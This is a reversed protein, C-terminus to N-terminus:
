GVAVLMKTGLEVSDVRYDAVIHGDGMAVIRQAKQALRDDHTVLMFATGLEVNLETLLEFVLAGNQSDLNGTPEDALILKPQNALARVIAVRQQQGGSLEGPRSNLRSSLGVRDLLDKVWATDERSTREKRIWLPMMANELVTFEALLYHFQFVFGITDGRIRALGPDDLTSTDIGDIFIRGSSPRDLAGVLNLLTSKGSGSAGVIALFEGADIRFDVGRLAWTKVGNGYSKSLEVAEVIPKM